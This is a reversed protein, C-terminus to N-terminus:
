RSSGKKFFSFILSGFIYLAVLGIGAVLLIGLIVRVIETFYSFGWFGDPNAIYWALHIISIIFYVIILVVAWFLLGQLKNKMSEKLM